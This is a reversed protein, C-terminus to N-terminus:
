FKYSMSVRLVPIWPFFLSVKDNVERASDNLVDSVFYPIEFEGKVAEWGVEPAKFYQVGASLDLSLRESLDSSYGFSFGPVLRFKNKISVIADPCKSCTLKIGGVDYFGDSLPLRSSLSLFNFRLGASAYFGYNVNDKRLYHRIDIGFSKLSLRAFSAIAAQDLNFSYQLPLYNVSYDVYSRRGVKSRIGIGPGLETLGSFVQIRYPIPKESAFSREQCFFLLSIAFVINKVIAPATMYITM